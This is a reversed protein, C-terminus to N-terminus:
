VLAYVRSPSFQPKYTSLIEVMKKIGMGAEIRKHHIAELWKISASLKAARDLDIIVSM